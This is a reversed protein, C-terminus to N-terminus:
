SCVFAIKSFYLGVCTTCRAAITPPNNLFMLSFKLIYRSFMMILSLTSLHQLSNPTLELKMYRYKRVRATQIFFLNFFTNGTKWCADEGVFRSEWDVFSHNVISRRMKGILTPKMWKQILLWNTKKKCYTVCIGLSLNVDKWPLIWFM